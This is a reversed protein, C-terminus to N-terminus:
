TVNSAEANVRYRTTTENTAWATGALLAAVALTLTNKM